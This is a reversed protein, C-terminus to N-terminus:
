DALFVIYEEGSCKEDKCYTTIMVRGEFVPYKSECDKVMCKGMGTDVGFFVARSVMNAFVGDTKLRSHLDILRKSKFIVESIPKKAKFIFSQVDLSFGGIEKIEKFQVARASIIIRSVDNPDTIYESILSDNGSGISSGLVLMSCLLIVVKVKM